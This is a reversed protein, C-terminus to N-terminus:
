DSGKEMPGKGYEFVQGLQRRPRINLKNRMLMDLARLPSRHRISSRDTGPTEAPINGLSAGKELLFSLGEVPHLLRRGDNDDGGCNEEAREPSRGGWDCISHLYVLVPTVNIYGGSHRVAACQNIDAGNDLCLQVMDRSRISGEEAMVQVAAFIPIRSLGMLYKEKKMVAGRIDAGRSLLLRVMSPSRGFIAASLPCMFIDQKPVAQVLNPHAGKNLLFRVFDTTPPANDDDDGASAAALLMRDVASSVTCIWEGFRAEIFLRLSTWARRDLLETLLQEVHRANVHRTDVRAGLDLLARAARASNSRLALYLTSLVRAAATPPVTISGPDVYHCSTEDIIASVPAGYRTVFIKIIADNDHKCAWLIAKSQVVRQSCLSAEIRERISKNCRLLATAAPHDLHATIEDFLEGPLSELRSAM